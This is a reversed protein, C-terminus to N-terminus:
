MNPYFKSFFTNESDSFFFSMSNSLFSKQMFSMSACSGVPLLKIKCIVGFFFPTRYLSYVSAKIDIMM